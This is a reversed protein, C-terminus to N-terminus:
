RRWPPGDVAWVLLLGLLLLGAPVALAALLADLLHAEFQGELCSEVEACLREPRGPAPLSFVAEHYGLWSM